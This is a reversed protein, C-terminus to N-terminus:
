SVIFICVSLTSTRGGYSDTVDFHVVSKGARTLSYSLISEVLSTGFILVDYKKELQSMKIHASEFFEPIEPTKQVVRFKDNLFVLQQRLFKDHSKVFSGGM